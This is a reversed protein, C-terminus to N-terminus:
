HRSESICVRVEGPIAAVQVGQTIKSDFLVRKKSHATRLAVNVRSIGHSNFLQTVKGQRIRESSDPNLHKPAADAFFRRSMTMRSAM